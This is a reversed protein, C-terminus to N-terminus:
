LQAITSNVADHRLCAAIAGKRSNLNGRVSKEFDASSDNASTRTAPSGRHAPGGCMTLRFSRPVQVCTAHSHLVLVVSSLRLQQRIELYKPQQRSARLKPNTSVPNQSSQTSLSRAHLKISHWKRNSAQLAVQREGPPVSYKAPPSCSARSKQQRMRAASGKATAQFPRWWFNDPQLRFDFPCGVSCLCAWMCCIHQSKVM